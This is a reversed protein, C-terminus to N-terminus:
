GIDVYVVIRQKNYSQTGKARAKVGAPVRVDTIRMNQGPALVIEGLPNLARSHPARGNGPMLGQVSAKARYRFEVVRSTFTSADVAKSFNNHSTSLFSSETYQQGVLAQRLQAETMRQCNANRVGAQTLMDDLTPQHDYRVLNLNQGLNHMAEMLGDRVYQQNATLPQGTKMAYNMNQAMNYLSGPEEDPELYNMIAMQSDISLSQQQYYARGGVLDHFGNPDNDPFNANNAANATVPDPVVNPPNTQIQPPTPLQMRTTTLRSNSGRGGM